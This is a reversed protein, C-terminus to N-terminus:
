DFINPVSRLQQQDNEDPCAKLETSLMNDPPFEIREFDGTGTTNDLDINKEFCLYEKLLM